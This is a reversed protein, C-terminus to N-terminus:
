SFNLLETADCVQCGYQLEETTHTYTGSNGIEIMVQSTFLNFVEKM